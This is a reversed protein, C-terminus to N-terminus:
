APRSDQMSPRASFLKFWADLRGHDRRWDLEPFRFDLYGLACALALTGIHVRDAFEPVQADATHLARRIKGHLGDLWDDWQREEPRTVQEYRALLAADMIGDALSQLVLAPWRGPGQPFLGAGQRADIYECIVRSDFLVTGDEAIATPVQGLPNYIAIDLNPHVPSPQAAILELEGFGAEIALAQVKRAFPSAPSTYLKM